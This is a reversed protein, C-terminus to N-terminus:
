FAATFDESDRVFAGMLASWEVFAANLVRGHYTWPMSRAETDSGSFHQFSRRHMRLRLQVDYDPIAFHEDPSTRVVSLLFNCARTAKSFQVKFTHIVDKGRLRHGLTM